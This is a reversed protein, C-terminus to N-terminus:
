AFRINKTNASIKNLIFAMREEPSLVPVRVVNYGIKSYDRFLWDDLFESTQNDEPGLTKSRQLTLRDLIFVNAYRHHFCEPLIENPNMGFVRFFTLSDPCARDLFTIESAQYMSELKLQIAFIVRQLAIDDKRIEKITKGKAMENEFYQRAGEPVTKYGKNSLIDILTTKGCCSAGTLVHWNTRVKFPTLLLNPALETTIYQNM